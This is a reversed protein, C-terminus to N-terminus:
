IADAATLPLDLPAARHLEMVSLHKLSAETKPPSTLMTAWFAGTAVVLAAAFVGVRRKVRPSLSPAASFDIAGYSRAAVM